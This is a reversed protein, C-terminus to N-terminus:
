RELWGGGGAMQSVASTFCNKWGRMMWYRHSHLPVSSSWHEAREWSGRMRTSCTLRNWNSSFRIFNWFRVSTTRYWSTSSTVDSQAGSTRAGCISSVCPAGLWDFLLCPLRCDCNSATAAAAPSEAGRLRLASREGEGDEARAEELAAFVTAEGEDTDFASM